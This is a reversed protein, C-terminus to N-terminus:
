LEANTRNGVIAAGGGGVDGAPPSQGVVAESQTAELGTWDLLSKSATVLVAM